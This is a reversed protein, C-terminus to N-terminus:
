EIVWIHNHGQLGHKLPEDPYNQDHNAEYRVVHNEYEVGRLDRCVFFGKPRDQQKKSM